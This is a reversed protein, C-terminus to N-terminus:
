KASDTFIKSKDLTRVDASEKVEDLEFWKILAKLTNDPELMSLVTPDPSYAPILIGNDKNIQNFNDSRDDVVFTNELTIFKSIHPFQEKIFSIPKDYNEDTKRCNDWSLIMHPDNREVRFLRDSLREVYRRKGASWIIVYKFREFCYRLFERLHPRELGWMDWLDGSGIPEGVDSLQMHYLRSRIPYTRKDKLPMITAFSDDFTHVLTEDIDLIVVQDM